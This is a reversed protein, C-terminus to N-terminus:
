GNVNTDIQDAALWWEQPAPGRAGITRSRGVGTAALLLGDLSAVRAEFIVDITVDRALTGDMLLSFLWTQM